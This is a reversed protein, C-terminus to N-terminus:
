RCLDFGLRSFNRPRPNHHPERPSGNRITIVSECSPQLALQFPKPTPQTCLTFVNYSNSFSEAKSVYQRGCENVLALEHCVVASEPDEFVKTVAHDPDVIQGPDIHGRFSGSKIYYHLEVETSAGSAKDQLKPRWILLCHPLPSEKAYHAFTAHLSTQYIDTALYRANSLGFDGAFAVKHFQEGFFFTEAAFQDAEAEFVRQVHHPLWLLPCRYLTDRQWPIFDHGVEHLAGWNRKQMHLGEKFAVSRTGTDLMAQINRHAEAPLNVESLLDDLSLQTVVLNRAELAQEATLPPVSFGHTDLFRQAEIRIPSQNSTESRSM